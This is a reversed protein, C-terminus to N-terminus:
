KFQILNSLFIINIYKLNSGQHISRLTYAGVELKVRNLNSYERRCNSSNDRAFGRRRSDFCAVWTKRNADHIARVLCPFLECYELHEYLWLRGFFPLCM